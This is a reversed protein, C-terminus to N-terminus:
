VYIKGSDGQCTDKGGYFYAGDGACIQKTRDFAFNLNYATNACETDTKIPLTVQMLINVASGGSYEAGKLFKGFNLTIM